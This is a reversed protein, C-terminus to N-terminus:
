QGVISPLPYYAPRVGCEDIANQPLSGARTSCDCEEPTSRWGGGRYVKEVGKLNGPNKQSAGTTAYFQKSYSDLCWEWVNGRMDHIGLTNGRRTLADKPRSKLIDEGLPTCNVDEIQEGTTGRHGGRCAYEWQAESPLKLGAAKCFAACEQWSVGHVPLNQGTFEQWSMPPRSLVRAWEEQTVEFKALLFADVQIAHQSDAEHQGEINVKIARRLLEGGPVLVFRIGSSDHRYEEQGQSNKGLATFGDIRQKRHANTCSTFGCWLVCAFLMAYKTAFKM